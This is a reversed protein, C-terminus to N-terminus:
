RLAPKRQSFPWTGILVLSLAFCFYAYLIWNVFEELLVFYPAFGPNAQKIWYNFFMNWCAFIVLALANGALKGNLSKEARWLLLQPVTFLLFIFRYDYNTGLVYSGVFIGAGLACAPGYFPDITFAIKRKLRFAAALGAALLFLAGLISAYKLAAKGSLGLKFLTGLAVPAVSIGYAANKGYPTGARILALDSYTVAIYAMFLVSMVIGISLAKGFRRYFALYGLGFIPFLKLVAALLIGAHPMYRVNNRLLL